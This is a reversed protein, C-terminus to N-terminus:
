DWVYSFELFIFVSCVGYLVGDVVFEITGSFFYPVFGCIFCGSSEDFIVEDFGMGSFDYGFLFVYFGFSVVM